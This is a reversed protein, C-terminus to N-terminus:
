FMWGTQFTLFYARLPRLVNLDANDPFKDPDFLLNFSRTYRGSFHWHQNVFYSLGFVFGYDAKALQTTTLKPHNANFTDSLKARFLNSYSLGGSFYVKYYTAGSETTKIWDLFNILVPIEIYNLDASRFPRPDRNTSRAGRQSYLLETSLVISGSENLRATGKVGACLGFKNYGAAQDGLIQAANLGIVAGGGFRSQSSANTTLIALISALFLTKIRM